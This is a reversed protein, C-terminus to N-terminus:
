ALEPYGLAIAGAELADIRDYASLPKVEVGSLLLERRVNQLAPDDFARVLGQRLRVLDDTPIDRRTIYPLAPASPSVALSRLGAVAHPAVKEILRYTLCDVACVDAEGEAVQAMSERHGGSFRLESFFAEGKALPAIAARLASYGSQSGLDNAVARTARLDALGEYGADGRVLIESHYLGGECGPCAYVPTAVLSVKGKLLHTLPYGCTQSFLLDPAQWLAAMDDGRELSEPVDKLGEKRFALALGRWWADNATQLEPLDYMPLSARLMAM